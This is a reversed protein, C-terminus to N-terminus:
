KSIKNLNLWSKTKIGSLLVCQNSNKKYNKKNINFVLFQIFSIKINNKREHIKM